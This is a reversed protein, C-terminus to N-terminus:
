HDFRPFDGSGPKDNALTEGLQNNPFHRLWHGATRVAVFIPQCIDYASNAAHAIVVLAALSIVAMQIIHLKNASKQHFTFSRLYSM